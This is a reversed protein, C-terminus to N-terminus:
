NLKSKYSIKINNRRIIDSAEPTIITKEPVVLEKIEPAINEFSNASLIPTKYGNMNVELVENKVVPPTKFGNMNVELVGTKVVPETKDALSQELKIGQRLLEKIVEKTIIEVIEEISIKM